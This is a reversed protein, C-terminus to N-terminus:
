GGTNNDKRADRIVDVSLLFGEANRELNMKEHNKYVEAEPSSLLVPNDLAIPAISAIPAALAAPAAQTVNAPYQYGPIEPAMAQMQQMQAQQAKNKMILYGIIGGVIFAAGIGAILGWNTDNDAM